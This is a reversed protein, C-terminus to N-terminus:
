RVQHPASPGASEAAAGRSRYDSVLGVLTDAAQQLDDNVVVHRYHRCAKMERRANSLRKAIVPESDTGRQRLRAELTELSPPKIFITVADPIREVIQRTGQVDIDLLVDRGQDLLSALDKARTGYYNDHVRAWEAWAGRTIGAEFQAPSIFHYDQGDSEGKRPLRTTYSVSYGLDPIRARLM